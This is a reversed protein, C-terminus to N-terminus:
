ACWRAFKIKSTALAERALEAANPAGDAIASLVDRRLADERIHAAEDDDVALRRIAEVEECVDEATM